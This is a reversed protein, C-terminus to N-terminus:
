PVSPGPMAGTDLRIDDFTLNGGTSTSAGIQVSDAQTTFKQAANTAFATSFQADGAALFGELVANSGTGKKQHIGMRYVTGPVLAATTAGVSASGNRLTLKGTAELTLAGVTTGQDAIRVLRVQGSPVASIKLYLSIFVEDTATYNEQGYSSGTTIAM